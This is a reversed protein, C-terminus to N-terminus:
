NFLNDKGKSLNVDWSLGHGELDITSLGVARIFVVYIIEGLQLFM